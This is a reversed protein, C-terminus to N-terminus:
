GGLQELLKQARSRISKRPEDALDVLRPVLWDRLEADGVAWDGLTRMTENLVIWDHSTILNRQMIDVARTSQEDTLYNRLTAFVNALTWQTSPQDILAVWTLLDDIHAYVLVPDRMVVRKLASSVRLRVWEDDSRYTAILEDILSPDEDIAAVVELTRGLTNRGERLPLEFVSVDPVSVGRLNPDSANLDPM